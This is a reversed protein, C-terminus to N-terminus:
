TSIIPCPFLTRQLLEDEWVHDFDSDLRALYRWAGNRRFVESLFRICHSRQGQLAHLCALNYAAIIYEPDDQLLESFIKEAREFDGLKMYSLGLTKQLRKDNGHFKSGERAFHQMRQYATRQKEGPRLSEGHLFYSDALYFYTDADRNGAEMARQLHEIAQAYKKTKYNSIGLELEDPEGGIAADPLIESENSDLGDSNNLLVTTHDQFRQDIFTGHLVANLTQAVKTRLDDSTLNDVQFTIVNKARLMSPVENESPALLLVPKGFGVAVGIEYIVNPAMKDLVAVVGNSLHIWTRIERDFEDRIPFDLYSILRLRGNSRCIPKLVDFYLGRAVDSTPMCTVLYRYDM